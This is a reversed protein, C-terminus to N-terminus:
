PYTDCRTVLSDNKVQSFKNSRIIIRLGKYKGVLIIMIRGITRVKPLLNWPNIKVNM